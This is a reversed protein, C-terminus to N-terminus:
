INEIYMYGTRTEGLGWIKHRVENRIYNLFGIESLDFNFSVIVYQQARHFEVM